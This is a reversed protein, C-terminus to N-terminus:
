GVLYRNGPLKCSTAHCTHAQLSCAARTSNRLAAGAATM